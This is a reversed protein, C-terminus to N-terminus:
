EQSAAFRSTLIDDLAIQFHQRIAATLPAFQFAIKQKNKRVVQAEFPINLIQESLNFVLTVPTQAQAGFSREDAQIQFGGFSWNEVPYAKENIVVVCPDGTRRTNQRRTADAENNNDAKLFSFFNSLM